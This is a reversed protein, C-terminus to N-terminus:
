RYIWTLTAFAAIDVLLAAAVIFYLATWSLRAPRPTEDPM